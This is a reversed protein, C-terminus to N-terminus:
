PQTVSTDLIAVKEIQEFSPLVIQAVILESQVPDALTVATLSVGTDVIAVNEVANSGMLDAEAPTIGFWTSGLNEPPLFTVVNDPIYKVYTEVGTVPDKYKYRKDYVTLLLGGEDDFTSNLLQQVQGRSLTPMVGALAAIVTAQSRVSASSKLDNYTKRNMIIESPIFDMSDIVAQIDDLPVSNAHDSWPVSTEKRQDATMGYDINITQGNNSLAVIGTTILQARMIERTVAASQILKAADDFIRAIITDVLLRNTGNRLLIYRQRLEEDVAYSEKFYPMNTRVQQLGERQRPIAKVDFASLNLQVPADGRGKIWKLELGEARQNPFYSELLYTQQDDVLTDWYARLDSITVADWISM